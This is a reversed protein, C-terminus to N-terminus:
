HKVYSYSIYVSLSCFCFSVTIGAGLANQAMDHLHKQAERSCKVYGYVNSCSLVVAVVVLLLYGAFM